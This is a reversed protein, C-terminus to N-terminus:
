AGYAPPASAVVGQIPGGQVPVTAPAASAVTGQIPAGYAPPASPDVVTAVPATGYAPPADGASVATAPQGGWDAAAPQAEAADHGYAPPRAANEAQIKKQYQVAAFACGIVCCFVIALGVAAGVILATRESKKNKNCSRGVGDSDATVILRVQTAKTAYIYIFYLGSRTKCGDNDSALVKLRYPTEVSGDSAAGSKKYPELYDNCSFSCYGSPSNEACPYGSTDVRGVSPGWCQSSSFPYRSSAAGCQTLTTPQGAVQQNNYRTVSSAVYAIGNNSDELIKVIMETKSGGEFEVSLPECRGGSIQLRTSVNQEISILASTTALVAALALSRM